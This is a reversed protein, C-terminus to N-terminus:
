ESPTLHPSRLQELVSIGSTYQGEEFCTDVLSLQHRSMQREHDDANCLAYAMAMFSLFYNFCWNETLSNLSLCLKLTVYSFLLSDVVDRSPWRAYAILKSPSKIILLQPKGFPPGFRNSDKGSPGHCVLVSRPVIVSIWPMDM